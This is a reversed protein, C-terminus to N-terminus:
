IALGLWVLVVERKERERGGEGKWGRKGGFETEIEEKRGECERVSRLVRIGEPYHSSHHYQYTSQEPSSEQHKKPFIEVM